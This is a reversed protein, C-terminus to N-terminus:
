FWGENPDVPKGCFVERTVHAEVLGVTPLLAGVQVPEHVPKRGEALHERERVPPVSRSRRFSVISLWGFPHSRRTRHDDALQLPGV